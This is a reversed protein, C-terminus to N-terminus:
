ARKEEQEEEVMDCGSCQVTSSYEGNVQVQNISCEYDLIDGGEKLKKTIYFEIQFM